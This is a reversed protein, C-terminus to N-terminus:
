SGSSRTPASSSESWPRGSKFSVGPKSGGAAIYMSCWRSRIKSRRNRAATVYRRPWRRASEHREDDGLLECGCRACESTGYSSRCARCNDGDYVTAIADKDYGVFFVANCNDCQRETIERAGSAAEAYEEDLRRDFGRRISFSWGRQTESEDPPTSHVGARAGRRATPTTAAADDCRAQWDM